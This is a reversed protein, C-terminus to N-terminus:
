CGYLYLEGNIMEYVRNAAAFIIYNWDSSGYMPKRSYAHKVRTVGRKNVEYTAATPLIDIKDKDFGFEDHILEIAERETIENEEVQTLFIYDKQTMNTGGNGDRWDLEFDLDRKLERVEDNLDRVKINLEKMVTMANERAAKVEALEKKLECNVNDMSIAREQLSCTWDNDINSKAVEFCGKFATGIYSDEGLSEVISQIQALAKREQEKATIMIFDEGEFIANVTELYEIEAQLKKMEPEESVEKQIAAWDIAKIEDEISKQIADWDISKKANEIAKDM